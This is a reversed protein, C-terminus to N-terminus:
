REENLTARLAQALEKITFPKAILHIHGDRLPAREVIDRAYGSMLLVRLEPYRRTMTSALEVGSSGPMIVDTLLISIEPNTSLLDEAEKADEAQLASYGLEEVAVTVFARVEADDEVVLVTHPLAAVPGDHQSPPSIQASEARPLYLKVTTGLGVQSYIKIHGKSQTLFGHIQSLGLGTGKGVSKTTFFPEFAKRLVEQTMGQGTDSVAVMVYEGPTVGENQKAYSPDLYANATEITLRGQGEMADRSNVALNLLASELQPRDVYANWLNDGLVLDIHITEGLTRSFIAWMEQVCANVSICSPHLAQRRSFALLRKTLEAAKGAGALANKIFKEVGDPSRELRRLAIELNGVVVALMNNFDHAIGGTLQGLAEMKQAQRLQAETLRQHGIQERLVANKFETEHRQRVAERVVLVALIFALLTTAVIAFLLQQQRLRAQQLSAEERHTENADLQEILERIQRLLHQGHGAKLRELAAAQDNADHLRITGALEAMKQDIIPFLQDLLKRQVPDSSMLLRLEARTATLTRRTSLYPQLYEPDGTLLYGRRAMEADRVEGFLQVIAHRISMSRNVLDSARRSNASALVALGCAILLLVFGTWVEFRLTNRLRGPSMRWPRRVTFFAPKRRPHEM